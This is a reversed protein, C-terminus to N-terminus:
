LMAWAEDDLCHVYKLEAPTAWGDAADYTVSTAMYAGGDEGTVRKCQTVTAEYWKNLGTWYVRIRTGKRLLPHRENEKENEIEADFADVGRNNKAPPRRRREFLDQM